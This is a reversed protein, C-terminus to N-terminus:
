KNKENSQNTKFTIKTESNPKNKTRLIQGFQPFYQRKGVANPAVYRFFLPHRNFNSTQNTKYHTTSQNYAFNKIRDFKLLCGTHALPRSDHLDEVFRRDKTFDTLIETRYSLLKRICDSGTVFVFVSYFTGFWQWIRVITGVLALVGTQDSFQDLRNSMERKKNQNYPSIPRM